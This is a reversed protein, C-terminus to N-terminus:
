SLTASREYPEDGRQTDIREPTVEDIAHEVASKPFGSTMLSENQPSKSWPSAKSAPQHDTPAHTARTAAKAAVAIKTLAPVSGITPTTKTEPGVAATTMKPSNDCNASGFGPPSEAEHSTREPASDLTM